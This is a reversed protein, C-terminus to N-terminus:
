PNRRLLLYPFFIAVHAPSGIVSPASYSTARFRIPKAPPEKFRAAPRARCCGHSWLYIHGPPRDRHTHRSGGGRGSVIRISPITGMSSKCYFDLRSTDFRWLHGASCSCTSIVSPLMSQMVRTRAHCGPNRHKDVCCNDVLLVLVENSVRIRIM